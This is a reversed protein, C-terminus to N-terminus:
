TIGIVEKKAAKHHANSSQSSVAYVSSFSGLMLIAVAIIVFIGYIMKQRDHLMM